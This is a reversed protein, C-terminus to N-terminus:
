GEVFARLRELADDWQRGVAALDAEVEEFTTRDLGYLQERGARHRRVLGAAELVRLHKAVGQRTMATGAALATISRPEGGALSAVLGLRTSDGLAAFVSARAPLSALRDAASM